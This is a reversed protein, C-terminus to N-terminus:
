QKERTLSKKTPDWVWFEDAWGKTEAHEGDYTQRRIWVGPRAGGGIKSFEGLTANVDILRQPTGREPLLWMNVMSNYSHEVNSQIVFIDDDGGFLHGVEDGELVMLVEGIGRLKGDPGFFRVRLGALGAKEGEKYLFSSVVIHWGRPSRLDRIPAETRPVLRQVASVYKGIILRRIGPQIYAVGDQDTALIDCIDERSAVADPVFSKRCFRDVEGALAASAALLQLVVVAVFAALAPALLSTVWRGDSDLTHRSM